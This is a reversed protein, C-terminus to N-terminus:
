QFKACRCVFSRLATADSRMGLFVARAPTKRYLLFRGGKDVVFMGHDTAIQRAEKFKQQPSHTRM